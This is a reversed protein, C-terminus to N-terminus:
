ELINLPINMYINNALFKPLRLKIAETKQVFQDSIDQVICLLTMHKDDSGENYSRM